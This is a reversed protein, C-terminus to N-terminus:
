WEDGNADYYREKRGDYTYMGGGPILKTIREQRIPLKPCNSVPTTDVSTASVISVMKGFRSDVTTTDVTTSTDVPATDVTTTDVTSKTNNESSTDM